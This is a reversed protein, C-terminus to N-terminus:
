YIELVQRTYNFCSVAKQRSIFSYSSPLGTKPAEQANQSHISMEPKEQLVLTTQSDRVRWSTM